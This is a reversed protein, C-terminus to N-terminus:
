LSWNCPKRPDSSQKLYIFLCDHRSSDQTTLAIDLDIRRFPGILSMQSMEMKPYIQVTPIECLAAM